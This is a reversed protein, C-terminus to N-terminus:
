LRGEEEMYQEDWKSRRLMLRKNEKITEMIHYRHDPQVNEALIVLRWIALAHLRVWGDITTAKSIHELAIRLFIDMSKVITVVTGQIIIGITPNKM